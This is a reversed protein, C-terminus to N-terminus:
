IKRTREQNGSLYTGPTDPEAGRREIEELKKLFSIEIEARRKEARLLRVEARLKEVETMEEPSKRKGRKDQLGDVGNEEYRITYSRAQQYSIHFKKATESYNHSHKICYQVIEVREEFTTKRGKTMIARGGTEKDHSNYKMIWRRLIQADSIKHRACIDRLSGKGSLYDFVAAEKQAPTRYTHGKRFFAEPGIAKYNRLWKDVTTYYVGIKSAVSSISEKKQLIKKMWQIKEEPSIEIEELTDYAATWYDDAEKQFDSVSIRTKGEALVRTVGSPTRMVQRLDAIVGVTYFDEPKPDEVIADKQAM